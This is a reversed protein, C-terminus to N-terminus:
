VEMEEQTGDAYEIKCTISEEQRVIDLIEDKRDEETNFIRVMMPSGYEIDVETIPKGRRDVYDFDYGPITPHTREPISLSQNIFRYIDYTVSTGTTTWDAHPGALTITTGDIEEIAYYDTGILVMYNEKFKSSESADLTGDPLYSANVGNLIPLGTEHDVPTILTLGRYGLQAIANDALRRYVTVEVGAVDGGTYADIYFQHPDDDSFCIIEYQTGSYLVYDGIRLINSVDDISTAVSGPRFDVCGRDRVSLAGGTGTARTTGSDDLLTWTIGTTAAPLTGDDELELIGDPLVNLIKYPGGGFSPVSLEWADGTYETNEKDWESKVGLEAFDVAADDFTFYNAQIINTPDQTIIKNSLRFTFQSENVPQTLAPDAAAVVASHGVADSLSYDGALIHPSLIEMWNSNDLPSGSVSEDNIGLAEFNVFNGHLDDSTTGPSFIAVDDNYATGTSSMVVNEMDALMTRRLIALATEPPVVRNFIVQGEGALMVEEGRVQVQVNIEESPPPVFENIAGSINMSHLIAQFPVYETLINQAEVIRDNTLHEIEIDVTYYSGVCDKCCDVFDKDIHCPEGSERKSGNYEDMNYVNESYPFETRIHGFVLPEHLPHKIQIIVDFMPDDEEIVRVNWNKPPYCQDREDRLDGLPLSRVYDEITQETAGPVEVVKYIIRITDGTELVIPDVSLQDGIWTFSNNVDDLDIYDATLETWDDDEVGRWYLEFNDLDLPLADQCLSFETQGEAVEFYDQWTYDSIVQWLQKYSQLVMGAVGFADSLGGYTGKKKYISPAQGIQRRWLTPDSSRLKLNYLNAFPTLYTEPTANVDLVGFIQNAVDELWTFGKAVSNNLEHIVEPSLDSSGLRTEYTQPLYRRMLTEYKEPDTRQTPLSTTLATDGFLFFAQHATTKDGAINATWTWCIFYDGERMGKPEWFLKFQGPIPDGNEDLDPILINDQIVKEREDPPVSDPNLWAPFSETGGTPDDYGFVEVPIAQRFYFVSTKKTEDIREQIKELARINTETPDDCVAQKAARYALLLDESIIENEYESFNTNAFEKEAFYIKVYDIKYPTIPCDDADTILITFEITDTIRPSEYITKTDQTM